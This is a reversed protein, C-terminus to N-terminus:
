CINITIAIIPGEKCFTTQTLSAPEQRWSHKQSSQCHLALEDFCLKYTPQMCVNMTQHLRINYPSLLKLVLLKVKKTARGTYGHAWTLTHCRPTNHGGGEGAGSGPAWVLMGEDTARQSHRPTSTIGTGEWSECSWHHNSCLSSRGCPLMLSTLLAITNISLKQEAM